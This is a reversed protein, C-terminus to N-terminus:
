RPVHAAGGDPLADHLQRRSNIGLKAIVKRMHWEVTRPSLFLQAGIERNSLGDRALQAIQTEQMTLQGRTDDSRKRVKEGTALLERRAREAFAEMGITTLIDHAIRLQERADVRRGERRLWEGYLLHARALDPRLRTRGLRELAERYADEAAPGENLLAHCRAEIGLAANNNAPRTIEILQELATGALEGNATRAAAEVLEALAFRSPTPFNIASARRASEAAEEYRGLGNYLIAAAWHARGTNTGAATPLAAEIAELAEAERGQMALLRMRTSQGFRSGTAAAIDEGEAILMEAQALDGMRMCAIAARSLYLTLDSLAGAKRVLDVYRMSMAYQREVDWLGIGATTATGGWRLIDEISLTMLMECARSLPPVAAAFGETTLIALADLLVDIPRPPGETPALARVSRAIESLLEKDALDGVECVANWASLYTERALDLDLPALARAAVVLSQPVDNGLGSAFGIQGRLLGARARKADDLPGSDAIALLGLAADFEGAHASAQAAVLAREARRAPDVTLTVARGLFAAAAAIGGRAQARDASQELEDAVNENPAATAHARHWARRDPDIEPDTAEALARHVRHRDNATAARYAASRALPHAFEIRARVDVLGDDVAADIAAFDVGLYEAARHLLVPDGLPEAAAAVVLLRTPPPLGALRRAYSQEVKGAVPRSDLVGFGGALSPRTGTRSFEHLALPNGHSETVIQDLVGVDLPGHVISLLLDRADRDDLPPVTLEPLGALVDDGIGTRASSLIVLQEALLRRCVFLVIQASAVDLWHADDIVCLLPQEDAVEALLTLTALGVLFRDPAPGSEQGFVTELAGRQPVPLHDLHALMPACLQHLGSYALEM